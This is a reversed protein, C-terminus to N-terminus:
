SIVSIIAQKKAVALKYFQQLIEFNDALYDFEDENWEIPPYLDKSNMDIADFRKKLDKRSWSAVKSFWHKAEAARLYHAPGYGLDQAEDVLDGSLVLRSIGEGAGAMGEGNLLYLIGDWSKDLDIRELTDEVPEDAYVLEELLESDEIFSNLDQESVRFISLIMGM